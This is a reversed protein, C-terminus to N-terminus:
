KAISTNIQKYFDQTKAAANDATIEGNVIAKAFNQAPAWYDNMGTVTPQIVSTKNFTDNQATILADNKIADTALLETNCPIVGRLEYHKKQADKSGLYKALAVAVQQYKCNPNVAIAKSGAFALMQKDKGGIKVTPLSVAGFNDGLIEKVSKYDWSGSFYAGVSGDRLGAIGVGQLDNVFNPNNVLSVMAQTAQTGKDGSIDVGASNDKGDKGFYKCGNALFFSSMYWGETINFAVKNKELMKDLSKVDSDTFKSKDYYMFWTNTTFPVGYVAGDVSVSDM